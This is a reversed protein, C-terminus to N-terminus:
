KKGSQPKAAKLTAILYDQAQAHIVGPAGPYVIKVPTEASILSGCFLGAVTTLTILQKM